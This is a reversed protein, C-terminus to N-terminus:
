AQVRRGKRAANRAYGGGSSERHPRGQTGELRAAKAEIDSRTEGDVRAIAAALREALGAGWDHQHREVYLKHHKGLLELADIKSVLKFRIRRVERAHEGRGDMFQEVTVDALAATQAPTLQDVAAM